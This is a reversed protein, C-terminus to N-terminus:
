SPVLAFVCCVTAVQRYSRSEGYSVKGGEGETEALIIAAHGAFGIRYLGCFRRCSKSIGDSPHLCSLLSALQGDLRSAPLSAVLCTTKGYQKSDPKSAEFGALM